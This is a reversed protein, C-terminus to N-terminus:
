SASIDPLFEESANASALCILRLSVLESNMLTYLNVIPMKLRPRIPTRNIAAPTDTIPISFIACSLNQM